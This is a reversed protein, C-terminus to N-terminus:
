QKRPDKRSNEFDVFYGGGLRDRVAAPLREGRAVSIDRGRLDLGQGDYQRSNAKHTSDDGSTITWPSIGLREAEEAVTSIVPAM